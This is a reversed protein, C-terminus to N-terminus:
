RDARYVARKTEQKGYQATYCIKVKTVINLRVNLVRAGFVVDAATYPDVAMQENSAPEQAENGTSPLESGRSGMIIIYYCM